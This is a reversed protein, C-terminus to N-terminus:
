PLLSLTSGMEGAMDKKKKRQRLFALVKPSFSPIIKLDQERHVFGAPWILGTSLHDGNGTVIGKM